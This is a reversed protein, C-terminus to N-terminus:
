PQPEETAPQHEEVAVCCHGPWPDLVPRWGPLRLGDLMGGILALNMGCVLDRQQEALHHFPCNRLR